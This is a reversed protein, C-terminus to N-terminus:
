IRSDAQSIKRLRSEEKEIKEALNRIDRNTKDLKSEANRAKKADSRADGARNDARKALRKYQPDNSLKNAAKRNADASEQAKAATTEKQTELEPVLAQLKSLKDKDETIRNVLKISDKNPAQAMALRLLAFLSISLSIFYKKMFPQKPESFVICFGQGAERREKSTSM